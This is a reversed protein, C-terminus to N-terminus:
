DKHQKQLSKAKLWLAELTEMDAEDFRRGEAALAAEMAGIRAEFKANCGRLATEPDVGYRRCLNVGVFLLDGLEEAIAAADGAAAAEEAEAMEERLKAFIDAADRWDFGARAARRQLKLARTTAPLAIPVDDLLGPPRDAAAARAAREAAKQTEWAATQGDSDRGDPATFVHPHRAVMKDAVSAAVADFDWWGREQAMQAYYVVQFLLDGLEGRLGDWDARDIADRVEYAEEVTHPAITAFDQELDWPCGEAPDRLRAM